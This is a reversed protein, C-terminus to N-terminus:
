KLMVNQHNLYLSCFQFAFYLKQLSVIQFSILSEFFNCNIQQPTKEAARQVNIEEYKIRANTQKPTCRTIATVRGTWSFRTNTLITHKRCRKVITIFLNFTFDLYKCNIRSKVMNFNHKLATISPSITSTPKKPDRCRSDTSCVETEDKIYGTGHTQM